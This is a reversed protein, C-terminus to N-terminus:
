KVTSLKKKYYRDLSQKKVKNLYAQYKKPKFIKRHIYHITSRSYGLKEVAYKSMGEKLLQEIRARCEEPYKSIKEIQEM